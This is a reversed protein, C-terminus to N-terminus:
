LNDAGAERARNRFEAQLLWAKAVRLGLLTLGGAVPIWILAHVWWPPAASLELWVALGTVLGGVILILFAAPGDGVNFRAFDLGCSTCRPAFKVLGKFLSRGGCQPCCGFLAAEAWSVGAGSQGKANEPQDSTM